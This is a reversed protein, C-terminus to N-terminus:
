AADLRAAELSGHMSGLAARLVVAAMDASGAVLAGERSLDPLERLSVIALALEALSETLSDFVSEARTVTSPGPEEWDELADQARLLASRVYTRASEEAPDPKTM